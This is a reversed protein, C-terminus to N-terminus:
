TDPFLHSMNPLPGCSANVDTQYTVCCREQRSRFPSSTSTLLAVPPRPFLISVVAVQLSILRIRYGFHGAKSSSEMEM